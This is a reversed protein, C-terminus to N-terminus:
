KKTILPKKDGETGRMKFLPYLFFRRVLPRLSSFILAYAGTLWGAVILVLLGVLLREGLVWEEPYNQAGVAEVLSSFLFSLTLFLLTTWPLKKQQM